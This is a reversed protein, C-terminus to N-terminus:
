FRKTTKMLEIDDRSIFNGPDIGVHLAVAALGDLYGVWDLVSNRDNRNVTMKRAFYLSLLVRQLTDRFWPKIDSVSSM